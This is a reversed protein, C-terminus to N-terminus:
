TSQNLQQLQLTLLEKIREKLSLPELIEAHDGYMMFWRAFGNELDRTEFTLALKDGMQEEKLFGHYHREWRLYKAIYPTVLIRVRTTAPKENKQLYYDLPEHKQTFAQDTQKIAAVRDIRFQRYDTRLHCFAIVYWFGDQHFVGVPEITRWTPCDADIAEYYLEVQTKRAISEFLTALAHPVQENFKKKISSRMIVQPEINAIWDKDNTRLVARLKYMASSFHEHMLKDTFQQMLKEAAVFSTAEEQTFMVPPLRYGDILSYGVGAESYIPVGSAELTKIDRYITRLSVEFRDALEQAKIIRKSQLQIFIAVIRDFRKPSDNHM